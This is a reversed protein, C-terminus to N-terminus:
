NHYMGYGNAAQARPSLVSSSGLYGNSGSAAAMVPIVTSSGYPDTAADSHHYGGKARKGKGTLAAEKASHVTMMLKGSHDHGAAALRRCCLVASCTGSVLLLSVMTLFCVIFNLSSMCVKENIKESLWSKASDYSLGDESSTTTTQNGTVTKLEDIPPSTLRDSIAMFSLDGTSVVRIVKNLGVEKSDAAPAPSDAPVAAATSEPETQNLAVPSLDRIERRSRALVGERQGGAMAGQDLGAGALLSAANGADMYISDSGGGGGGTNITGSIQHNVYHVNSQGSQDCQEPCSNKCIQITCQFHVEMSDPFKFAQFHAYSLVSASSGFNKIKTFRSMLKSRVICGHTDVLEIPARKGDHAVCNRVLMDFKNEEDKIALVM